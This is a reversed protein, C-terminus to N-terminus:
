NKEKRKRKFEKIKEAMPTDTKRILELYDDTFSRDTPNNTPHNTPNYDPMDFRLSVNIREMLQNLLDAEAEQKTNAITHFIVRDGKRIEAQIM